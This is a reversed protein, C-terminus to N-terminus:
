IVQRAFIMKDKYYFEANGNSEESIYVKGDVINLPLPKSVYVKGNDIIVNESSEGSGKDFNSNFFGTM